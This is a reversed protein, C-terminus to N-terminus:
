SLIKIMYTLSILAHKYLYECMLFLIMKEERWEVLAAAAKDKDSKM